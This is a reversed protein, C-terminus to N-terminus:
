YSKIIVTLKNSVSQVVDHEDDGNGQDFLHGSGSSAYSRSAGRQDLGFDIFAFYKMKVLENNSTGVYIYNRRLFQVRQYQWALPEGVYM